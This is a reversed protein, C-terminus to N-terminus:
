FNNPGQTAYLSSPTPGIKHVLHTSNDGSRANTLETPAMIPVGTCRQPRRSQWTLILTLKMVITLLEIDAGQKRIGIDAVYPRYIHLRGFYCSFGDHYQDVRGHVANSQMAAISFMGREVKSRDHVM